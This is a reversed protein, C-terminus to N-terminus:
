LIWVEPQALLKRLTLASQVTADGGGLENKFEFCGSAGYARKGDFIPDLVVADAEFRNGKYGQKPQVDLVEELFPMMIDIRKQKSEYIDTAALFLKATDSVRKEEDRDVVKM